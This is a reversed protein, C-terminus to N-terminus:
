GNRGSETLMLQYRLKEVERHPEHEQAGDPRWGHREYFGRARANGALVWLIAFANSLAHLYRVAAEHTATGHGCGWESPEVYLGYLEGVGSGLDADRSPGSAAVAVIREDVEAVLVAASEWSLMRRWTTLRREFTNLIVVDDPLHRANAAAWSACHLEAVAELDANTARRVGRHGSNLPTLSPLQEFAPARVPDVL